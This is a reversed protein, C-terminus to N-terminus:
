IYTREGEFFKRLVAEESQSENFSSNLSGLDEDLLFLIVCHMKNM